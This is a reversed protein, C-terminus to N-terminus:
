EEPNDLYKGLNGLKETWFSQYVSVWDAVLKLDGFTPICKRVRGDWVSEVLGAEDLINVHKTVAQRSMSFQSSIDGLPLPEPSRMLLDIIDRRTEDAIAKFIDDAQRKM